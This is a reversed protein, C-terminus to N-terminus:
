LLAIVGGLAATIAGALDIGFPSLAVAVVTVLLALILAYEAFDQAKEECLRRSIWQEPQSATIVLPADATIQRTTPPNTGLGTALALEDFWRQCAVLVRGGKLWM